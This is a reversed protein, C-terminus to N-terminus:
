APPLALKGSSWRGQTWVYETIASIEHGAQFYVRVEPRPGNMWSICDIQTGPICDAHFHGETWSKGDYVMECMTNSTNYFVRIGVTESSTMHSTCAISTRPQVKPLKAGGGYWGRKSDYCKEIIGHEMHQFYVRINPESTKFVTCTIDTGPMASGLNSMTEWNGNDKLGYEQITNNAMQCYVRNTVDPGNLHCAALKSCPATIFCKKGLSGEYWGKSKDYTVDNITNETSLYYVRINELDSSTCALPSYPKASAVINKETGNSWKDDYKSERIKGLVDQMYVRLDSGSNCAAISTRFVIEHAENSPM